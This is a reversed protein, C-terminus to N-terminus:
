DHTEKSLPRAQGPQAGPRPQGGASTTDNSSLRNATHKAIRRQMEKAARERTMGYREQLHFIFGQFQRSRDLDGETLRAWWQRSQGRV